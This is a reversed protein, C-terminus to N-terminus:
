TKSSKEYSMKRCYNFGFFIFIILSLVQSIRFGFVLLSDTRLGEIFLRFFSYSIAYLFFIQGKFKRNKQLMKLILFISFTVIAEYLFCPHVEIYKERVYIGMRILSNTESGYAEINFFNGFRGIAQALAVYPILYDLFNLFDKKQIKCNIYISIGGFILGGYIALGGNKINFIEQIGCNLYYELNFLVYYLRAGIIGFFMGLICNEIVFEFDNEYKEKSIKCLILAIIIGLVICIAYKYIPIEFIYFAIKSFKFELNFGPFKVISMAKDKM